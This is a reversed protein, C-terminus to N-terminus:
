YSIGAPGLDIVLYLLSATCRCQQMLSGLGAGGRVSFPTLACLHSCVGWATLMSYFLILMVAKQIGHRTFGLIHCAEKSDEKIINSLRGYPLLSSYPTSVLPFM